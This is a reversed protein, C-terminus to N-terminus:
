ASCSCCLRLIIKDNIKRLASADNSSRHVTLLDTSQHWHWTAFLHCFGLMQERLFAFATESVIVQPKRDDSTRCTTAERADLAEGATETEQERRHEGVCHKVALHGGAGGIADGKSGEREWDFLDTM